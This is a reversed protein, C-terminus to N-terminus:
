VVRLWSRFHLFFCFLCVITVVILTYKWSHSKSPLLTHIVIIMTKLFFPEKVCKWKSNAGFVIFFFSNEKEKTCLSMCESIWGHRVIEESRSWHIFYLACVLFFCLVVCCYHFFKVLAGSCCLHVSWLSALQLLNIWMRKETEIKWCVIKQVQM